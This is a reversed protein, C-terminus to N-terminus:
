QLHAENLAKMEKLLSDKPTSHTIQNKKIATDIFKQVEATDQVLQSNSISSVVTSQTSGSNTSGDAKQGYVVRAYSRSPAEKIGSNKIDENNVEKFTQDLFNAYAMNANSDIPRNLRKPSSDFGTLHKWSKHSDHSEMKTTFTDVWQIAQDFHQKTTLLHAKNNLNGMEISTFLKVQTDPVNTSLVM